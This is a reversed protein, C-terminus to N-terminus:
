LSNDNDLFIFICAESSKCYRESKSLGDEMEVKSLVKEWKGIFFSWRCSFWRFRFTKSKYNKFFDVFLDVYLVASELRLKKM